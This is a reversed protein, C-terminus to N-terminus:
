LQRPIAIHAHNPCLVPGLQFRFCGPIRSAPAPLARRLAVAWSTGLSTAYPALESPLGAICDWNSAIALEAAMVISPVSDLDQGLLNAATTAIVMAFNATAVEAIIGLMCDFGEPLLGGVFRHHVQNEIRGLFAKQMRYESRVM